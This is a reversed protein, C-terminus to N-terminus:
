NNNNEDNNNNNNKNNNENINEDNYDDDEFRIRTENESNKPQDLTKLDLDKLYAYASKFVTLWYDQEPDIVDRDGFIDVFRINSPLNPPNTVVIVYIIIPLMLDAGIERIGSFLLINNIIKACKALVGIKLSPSKFQNLTMLEEIALIWLEKKWVEQPIQLIQPTLKKRIETMKISFDNDEQEFQEKMFIPQFIFDHIQIFVHNQISILLPRLTKSYVSCLPDMKLINQSSDFFDTTNKRLIELDSSEKIIKISDQLTDSYKEIFARVVLARIFNDFSTMRSETQNVLEELRNVIGQYDYKQSVLNHLHNKRSFYSQKIKLMLSSQDLKKENQTIKELARITADLICAQNISNSAFAIEKESRLIDIINKNKYSEVNSFQITWLAQKFKKEADQLFSAQSIKIKKAIVPDQKPVSISRNTKNSFFFSRGREKTVVNKTNLSLKPPAPLTLTLSLSLYKNHEAPILEPPKGFELIFKILPAELDLKDKTKPLVETAYQYILQHLSYVDNPTILTSKLLPKRGVFFLDEKTKKKKNEIQPEIPKVQDIVNAIEAFFRSINIDYEGIKQTINRMSIRRDDKSSCISLFIKAIQTLNNKHTKTIPIDTIVGYREQHLLFCLNRFTKSLWRIGYPLLPIKKEMSDLFQKMFSALKTTVLDPGEKQEDEKQPSFDISSEQILALMPDRLGSILFSQTQSNKVYASLLRSLLKNSSLMTRPEPSLKLQELICSKLLILMKFEEQDNCLNGFLSFIASHSLTEIYNRQLGPTLIIARALIEPSDRLLQIMQQYKSRQINSLPSQLFEYMEVKWSNLENKSSHLMFGVNTETLTESLRNMNTWEVLDTQLRQLLKEAKKKIAELSKQEADISSKEKKLIEQIEQIQEWITIRKRSM